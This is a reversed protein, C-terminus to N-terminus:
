LNCLLSANFVNTKSKTSYRKSSFFRMNHSIIKCAEYHIYEEYEIESAYDFEKEAYLSCYSLTDWKYITLLENVTEIVEQVFYLSTKEEPCQGKYKDKVLLKIESEDTIFEHYVDDDGVRIALSGYTSIYVEQETKTINGQCDLVVFDRKYWM